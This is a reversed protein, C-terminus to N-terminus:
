GSNGTPPHSDNRIRPVGPPRNRDRAPPPEQQSPNDFPLPPVANGTVGPPTRYTPAVPPIPATTLPAGAANLGAPGAPPPQGTTEHYVDLYERIVDRQRQFDADRKAKATREQRRSIEEQIQRPEFVYTFRKASKDDTGVLRIRVEGIQFLSNTLGTTDSVVNDIQTLAFQDKEDQLFVPRKHIITITQDGIIYMDNRWDWDAAYFWGIGAVIIVLPVFPGIMGLLFLTIGALIFITPFIVHGIWVLWHKRYVSEGKENLYHISFLGPRRTVTGTADPISPTAPGNAKTLQEIENRISKRFSERNEQETLEQFSKRQAFIAQQVAQPNPIQHLTLNATSGSTKIILTGYGLIRGFIDNLPPLTVNLELVKDLPIENVESSFNLIMRRINVLRRDTIILKDHYWETYYFAIMLLLIATVPLAIIASPFLPIYQTAITSVVWVLVILLGIGVARGAFSWVHRRIERIVTENARQEEFSQAQAMLISPTHPHTFILNNKIDPRYSVISLMQQRSLFLVISIETARLTFRAPAETFLAEDPLYEGPMVPGLTREIRDAGWETLVGSGSVFMFLGPPVYGQQFIVEGQQYRFVQTANAIWELQDPTLREFLPFRRINALVFRDAM